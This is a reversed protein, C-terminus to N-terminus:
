RKLFKRALEAFDSFYERSILHLTSVYVVAGLAIHAPLLIGLHDTWASILPRAHRITLWMILAAVAPPGLIKAVHRIGLGILRLGAHFTVLSFLSYLAVAVAVADVGYPLALAVGAVMLITGVINYKLALWVHNKANFIPTAIATAGRLAASIGFMRLIPIMALWKEGYLVPVMEEAIASLGLGVPIITAALIRGSRTVSSQLRETDKQIAAFAPFLVRQLPMAIRSRIEDTLSRANQYFGLANAGLFRGILLIDINMSLYFLIGSGFYSGSTRVTSSIYATHFRFRPFYPVAFLNLCLSSASAALAGAVLSWVGFGQIAFIIAVLARIAITIIQIWFETRFHMLRAIIAEHVSTLSSLVFTLCLFRLLDGTLPTAFLWGALFSLGFVVTTLAAGVLASAWFVTDLQLRNIVRRQILINAFGFGGFLGAFETIVTAMAIYGFDSPTLLRALVAVSGITILTRLGIGLFIYSAGSVVRRGLNNPDLIFANRVRRSSRRNRMASNSPYNKMSDSDSIPWKNAM